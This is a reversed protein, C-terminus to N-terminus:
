SKEWGHSEYMNVIQKCEEKTNGEHNGLFLKYGNEEPCITTNKIVKPKKFAPNEFEMGNFPILTTNYKKLVSAYLYNDSNQTDKCWINIKAIIEM